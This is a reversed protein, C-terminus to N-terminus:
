SQTAVRRCEKLTNDRVSELLDCLGSENAIHAAFSLDRCGTLTSDGFEYEVERCQMTYM